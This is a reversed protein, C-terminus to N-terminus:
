HIIYNYSYDIFWLENQKDIDIEPLLHVINNFQSFNNCYIKCLIIYPVLAVIGSYGSPVWRRSLIIVITYMIIM